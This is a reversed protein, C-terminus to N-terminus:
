GLGGRSTRRSLCSILGLLLLSIIPTTVQVPSGVLSSLIVTIVVFWKVNALASSDGAHTVTVDFVYSHIAHTLVHVYALNPGRVGDVRRHAAGGTGQMIRFIFCGPSRAVVSWVFLVLIKMWTRDKRCGVAYMHVQSTVMGFLVASIMMGMEIAGLSVDPMTPFVTAGAPRPTRTRGM